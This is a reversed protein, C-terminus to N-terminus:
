KGHKWGYKNAYRQVVTRNHASLQLSLSSAM